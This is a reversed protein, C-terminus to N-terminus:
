HQQFIIAYPHSLPFSLWQLNLFETQWSHRLYALKQNFTHWKAVIWGVTLCYFSLYRWSKLELSVFFVPSFPSFWVALHCPWYVCCKTPPLSWSFVPLVCPPYLLLLLSIWLCCNIRCWPLPHICLDHSQNHVSKPPTKNTNGRFYLTMDVTTPGHHMHIVLPWLYRLFSVNSGWLAGKARVAVM